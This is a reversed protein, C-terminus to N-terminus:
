KIRFNTPTTNYWRKFSRNFVSVDAYGLLYAVDKNSFEKSKLYTRAMEKRIDDVMQQYTNGQEKLRRQLTRKSMRMYDAVANIDPFEPNALKIIAKKVRDIEVSLNLKDLEKYAHEVLVSLLLYNSTKIEREVAAKSLYIAITPQNYSITCKYSKSYASDDNPRSWVFDIRTPFEKRLTLLNFQKITYAVVGEATQRVANPSTILWKKDPIIELKYGNQTKQLTMPLSSCGLNAFECCYELAQKVTTSNQTIQGVIGSAELGMSEASILGFHKFGHHSEIEAVLRDYANNELKFDQKLLQGESSGCAKLLAAKNLGKYVAVDILGLVFRGNFAMHLTLYTIAGFTM